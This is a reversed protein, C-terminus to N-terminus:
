GPAVPDSGDNVALQWSGKLKSSRWIRAASNRSKGVTGILVDTGSVTLSVANAPTTVPVSVGGNLPVDYLQATARVKALVLLHDADWWSVATPIGKIDSGVTVTHNSRAVWYTGSHSAAQSIAGVLVQVKGNSRTMMAVRAGDPAVRLSTMPLLNPPVGVQVVQRLVGPSASPLVVLETKTAAWLDGRQDWSLSTCSAPLRQTIVKAGPLLRAIYVKKGSCGALTASSAPGPSVAIARFPGRGFGAPLALQKAGSAPDQIVGIPSVATRRTEQFYVPGPQPVPVLAQYNSLYPQRGSPAHWNKHNLQLVVSRIATPTGYSTSTLTLVLQAAMQQWQSPSARAAGGGLDVTVQSGTVQVDLVVTGRPFATTAAGALWDVPPGPEKPQWLLDKALEMAAAATGSQQPIFVPDPVLADATSKAALFYLNRPEYVRLFDPETLLLPYRAQIRAIRWGVPELVLYFKFTGNPSSVLYQGAQFHGAATLYAVHQSTMQVIVPSATGSNVHQQEATPQRVTPLQDVVTVAPGPNWTSQYQRTLYERAVAFNHASDASAILFGTVIQGQSWGPGPGVPFFQVVGQQAQGSAGPVQGVRVRGTPPLTACAALLTVIAVAVAAVGPRGSM